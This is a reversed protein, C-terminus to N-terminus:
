YERHPNLGYWMGAGAYHLRKFEKGFQNSQKQLRSFDREVSIDITAGIAMGIGEQFFPREYPNLENIFVQTEEIPTERFVNMFGSIMNYAILNSLTTNTKDVVGLESMDVYALSDRNM